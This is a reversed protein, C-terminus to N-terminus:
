EVVLITETGTPAPDKRTPRPSLPAVAEVAPLYIKFTTGHGPESYIWISGGSQKVIGYVTSLGLGTGTGVAKTTFFPEFAHARTEADMGTGTDSVALMTYRGAVAESHRAAYEDDL